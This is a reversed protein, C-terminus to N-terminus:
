EPVTGIRATWFQYMGRFLWPHASELGAWNVLALMDPDEPYVRRYLDKAASDPFTFGLFRLGHHALLDSIQPITFRHEMVHFLLDRLMSTSYFDAAEDILSRFRDGPHNRVFRRCARIGEVSPTFGHQALSARLEVIDRRGVESYLGLMLYGGPSLVDALRQLGQAPDAMHHLVGVSSIVDFKEGLADLDLIDACLFEINGVGLENAKRSAYALSANSLDIATVRSGLHVAAYTIAHRGTGCGAILIRPSNTAPKLPPSFPAVERLIQSTYPVPDDRVVGLWRPYPNEEYQAKVALSTRDRIEGSHTLQRAIEAEIAPETLHMKVLTGLETRVPDLKSRCWQGIKSQEALPRYCALIGIAASSPAGTELASEVLRELELVLEHEADSVDWVYENLFCQQALAIALPRVTELLEPGPRDFVVLRLLGGRVDTFLTETARDDITIKELAALLLRDTCFGHLAPPPLDSLDPARTVLDIGLLEFKSRLTAWAVRGLAQYDVDGGALCALVARELSAVPLKQVDLTRNTACRCFNLQLDAREPQLEISRAHSELAAEVRGLKGLALGRGSHADAFDPKLAIARDYSALAEELRGQRSLCVGLNYRAEHDDPAVQLVQNFLREAEEDRERDLMLRGLNFVISPRGPALALAQRYLDEAAQWSTALHEALGRSFLERARELNSSM